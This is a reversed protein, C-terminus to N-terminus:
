PRRDNVDAGSGSPRPVAFILVSRIQSRQPRVLVVNSDDEDAGASDIEDMMARNLPWKRFDEGYIYEYKGPHREQVQRQDAAVAARVLHLIKRLLAPNDYKAGPNIISFV